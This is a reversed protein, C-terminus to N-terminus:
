DKRSCVRGGEGVRDWYVGTSTVTNLLLSVCSAAKLRMAEFTWLKTSSEGLTLLVASLLVVMMMLLLLLLALVVTGKGGGGSM